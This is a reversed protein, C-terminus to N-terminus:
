ALGVIHLDVAGVRLPELYEDEFSLMEAVDVVLSTKIYMTTFIFFTSLDNDPLLVVSLVLFPLNDIKVFSFFISSTSEIFLKSEM